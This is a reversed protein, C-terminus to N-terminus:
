RRRETRRVRASRVVSPAATLSLLFLGWVRGKTVDYDRLLTPWPTRAVYHGFGFEFAATAALWGSGILAADRATGIPWRRDLLYIYTGFLGIATVTSVQHAALDGLARQYTARRVVGNLVGLVPGGLWALSWVSLDTSAKM